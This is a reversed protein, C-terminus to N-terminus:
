IEDEFWRNKMKMLFEVNGVPLGSESPLISDIGCHPCVATSKDDGLEKENEDFETIWEDIQPPAIVACCRFCGCTKSRLVMPKNYISYRHAEKLDIESSM